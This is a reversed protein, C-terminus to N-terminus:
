RHDWEKRLERQFEVGDVGWDKLAGRFSNLREAKSKNDDTKAPSVIVRVEGPEFPVEGDIILHHNKDIHGIMEYVKMESSM